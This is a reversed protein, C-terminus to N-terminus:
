KIKDKLFFFRFEKINGRLYKCDNMNKDRKKEEIYFQIPSANSDPLQVNYFEIPSFTGSFKIDYWNQYWGITILLPRVKSTQMSFSDFDIIRFNTTVKILKM